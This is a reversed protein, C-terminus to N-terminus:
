QIDDEEPSPPFKWAGECGDATMTYLSYWTDSYSDMVCETAVCEGENNEGEKCTYGNAPDALECIFTAITAKYSSDVIIWTSGQFIKGTIPHADSTHYTFSSDEAFLSDYEAQSRVPTSYRQFRWQM